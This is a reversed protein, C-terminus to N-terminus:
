FFRRHQLDVEARSKLAKGASVFNVLQWIHLLATILFLIKLESGLAFLRERAQSASVAAISWYIITNCSSCSYSQLFRVSLWGEVGGSVSALVVCLM